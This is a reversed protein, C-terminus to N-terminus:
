DGGLTKNEFSDFAGGLVTGAGVNGSGLTGGAQRRVTSVVGSRARSAALSRRRARKVAEDDIDPIVPPPAPVPAKPPSFLGGM